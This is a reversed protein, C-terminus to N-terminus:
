DFITPPASPKLKEHLTDLPMRTAFRDYLLMDPVIVTRKKMAAYRERIQKFKGYYYGTGVAILIAVTYSGSLFFLGAVPALVAVKTATYYSSYRKEQVKHHVGLVTDAVTISLKKREFEPKEPKAAPKSKNPWNWIEVAKKPVLGGLNSSM